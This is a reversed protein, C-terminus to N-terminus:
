TLSGCYPSFAGFPGPEARESEKPRSKPDSRATTGAEARGSDVLFINLFNMYVYM